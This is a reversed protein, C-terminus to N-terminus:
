AKRRLNNLFPDELSDIDVVKVADLESPTMWVPPSDMVTLQPIEWEVQARSEALVVRWIAGQGYDYVTM